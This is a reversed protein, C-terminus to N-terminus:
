PPVEPGQRLTLNLDSIYSIVNLTPFVLAQFLYILLWKRFHFMRSPHINTEFFITTHTLHNQIFLNMLSVKFKGRFPRFHKVTLQVYTAHGSSRPTAHRMIDAAM